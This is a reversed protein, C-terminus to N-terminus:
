MQAGKFLQDFFYLCNGSILATKRQKKKKPPPWNRKVATNPDPDPQIWFKKARDSGPQDYRIRIEEFDNLEDNIVYM